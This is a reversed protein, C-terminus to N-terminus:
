FDYFVAIFCIPSLPPSSGSSRLCFCNKKRRVVRSHTMMLPGGARRALVLICRICPFFFADHLCLSVCKLFILCACLLFWVREFISYVVVTWVCM